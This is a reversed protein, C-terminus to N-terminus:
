EPELAIGVSEWFDSHTYKGHGTFSLYTSVAEVPQHAELASASGHFTYTVVKIRRASGSLSVSFGRKVSLFHVTM